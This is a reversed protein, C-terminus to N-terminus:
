ARERGLILWLLEVLVWALLLYVIMAIVSSVELVAGGGVPLQKVM